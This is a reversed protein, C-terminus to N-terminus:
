LIGEFAPDNQVCRVEDVKFCGGCANCPKIPRDALSLFETELGEEALVDLAAHILIDTNGNRRPSGSIGLVKM